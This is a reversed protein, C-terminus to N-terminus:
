SPEPGAGASLSSSPRQSTRGCRDRTVRTVVSVNLAQCPVIGGIELGLVHRLVQEEYPTLPPPTRSGVRVVFNDPGLEEIALVKRAALDLLTAPVAERGVAWGNTLMNVVAPPEDGPLDLTPPAPEPSRARTAVAFAAFVLLWLGFALAAAIGLTAATSMLTM